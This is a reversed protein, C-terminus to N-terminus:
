VLNRKISIREIVEKLDLLEEKGSVMDKLKLKGESLEKEGVILAFTIGKSNTIQLGKSIGRFNLDFDVKLGKSRLEQIIPLVKEKLGVSIVYLDVLTKKEKEKMLTLLVSLGFSIGTAPIVQKSELFSGIMEDFRGGGALSAKVTGNELFVEFVPGTYYGLGRALSLDIVIDKLKFAKCYDNLEKLETVGEGKLGIREIEKFVDCDLSNIKIAELLKKIQEKGLGKELLEKEVEKVGIKELKDITTLVSSNLEEKLKIQNMLENLLKRNNVKIVVKLGLEKFVNSTLALIEADAIMGKCGVIDVDCQTFERFRSNTVPGDRYIKGIQYRKFPMKLQPNMGVFRALPVTFDYRLGLEREGQDKFKFTEKVADSETGAAFKASLVEIREFTPTDLPNFGYKQFTKVIKEQLYDQLIKEEPMIDKVGRALMLKM